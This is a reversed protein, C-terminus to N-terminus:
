AALVAAKHQETEPSDTKDLVQLFYEVYKHKATEADLGKNKNWAEWKAKGAFDLMGPKPKENDGEKAQKFLGYFVLQDAQDPKIPGDKPLSGIIEVSKDFQASTYTTM